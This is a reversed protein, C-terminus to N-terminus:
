EDEGDTPGLADYLEANDMTLARVRARLEAQADLADALKEELIRVEQALHEVQSPPAWGIAMALQEATYESVDFYGEHEIMPGRFIRDAPRTIGTVSDEGERTTLDYAPIEYWGHVQTTLPAASM